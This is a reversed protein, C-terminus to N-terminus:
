LLLINQKIYSFVLKKFYFCLCIYFMSLKILLCHFCVKTVKSFCALTIVNVTKADKWINRRYLEIM